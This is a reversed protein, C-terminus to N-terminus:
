ASVDENHRESNRTEVLRDRLAALQGATMGGARLYGEVGDYKEDLHELVRLMNSAPTAQLGRLIERTREDAITELFEASAERLRAETLAYDAAILEPAVDAITLAM